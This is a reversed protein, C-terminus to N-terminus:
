PQFSASVFRPKEHMDNLILIKNFGYFLALDKVGEGFRENIEVYLQGNITLHDAAFACISKYFLLPDNDTVFLAQEPEFELVNRHMSMKESLLVYPPNSVIVDYRGFAEWSIRDLIDAHFFSITCGNEAANLRATELAKKSIDTAGVKANPFNIKLDIAICGSGTGIDLIAPNDQKKIRLATKIIACLEETEPRPILVNSDVGLTLGNFSTKGLIYQLPKGTCLEELAADFRPQDQAPIRAPYSLHVMTKNWGLYEEFLIYTLQRIEQEPYIGSLKERFHDVLKKVLIGEPEM